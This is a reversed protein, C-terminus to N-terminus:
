KKRRKRLRDGYKKLWGEIEKKTAKRVLYVYDSIALKKVETPKVPEYSIWQRGGGGLQKFTDSPLIYLYVYKQKPWGVYIRGYPKNNFDLSSSKVGKCRVIAMAIAIEKVYTAYIAKHVNEPADALDKGQRPIFKDGSIKRVSGHYLLKPKMKKLIPGVPNSGAVM